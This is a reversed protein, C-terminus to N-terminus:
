LAAPVLLGAKRLVGLLWWVREVDPEDLPLGAEVHEGLGAATFNASGLYGVRGAVVKAHFLARARPPVFTLATVDAGADRLRRALAVMEAHDDHDREDDPRKPRAGALTISAGLQVPHQLPDWLNEAGRGSWFPSALLASDTASTLADFVRKALSRQLHAAEEPLRVGRPVTFVVKAAPRPARSAEEARFHPLLAAVQQFHWLRYADVGGDSDVVGSERLREMLVGASAGAFHDPVLDEAPRDARLRRAWADMSAESGAFLDLVGYACGVLRQAEGGPLPPGTVAAAGAM